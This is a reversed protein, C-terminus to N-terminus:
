SFVVRRVGAQVLAGMFAVGYAVNNEFYKAPDAVSEGVYALAAFHICSDIQHEKTIRALLPRDAINGQYFPVDKDVAARHGRVLDDLVVVQAGKARLREVTVSGIYGAGGTVLIAM